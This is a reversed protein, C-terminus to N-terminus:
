WPWGGTVRAVMVRLRTVRPEHGTVRSVNERWGDRPVVSVDLDPRVGCRAGRRINGAVLPYNHCTYCTYRTYRLGRM